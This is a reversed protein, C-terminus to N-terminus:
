LIQEQLSVVLADHDIRHRSQFIEAHALELFGHRCLREHSVERFRLHSRQEGELERFFAFDRRLREQRAALEAEVLEPVLRADLAEQGDLLVFARGVVLGHIRELDRIGPDHDVHGRHSRRGVSAGKEAAAKRRIDVRRKDSLHIVVKLYPLISEDARSDGDPHSPVIFDSRLSARARCWSASAFSSRSDSFALATSFFFFPSSSSISFITSDILTEILITPQPPPPDFVILRHLSAPIVPACSAATFVSALCRSDTWAGFFIRMPFRSVFPRPAPASGSTPSCAAWSFSSSIRSKRRPEWTTNMVAPMPPPVPVPEACYTARTALSSPARVIPTTVIGNLDSPRMRISFASAPRSLSRLNLSVVMTM